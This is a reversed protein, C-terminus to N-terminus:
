QPTNQKDLKVSLFGEKVKAAYKLEYSMDGNELASLILNIEDQISAEDAYWGLLVKNEGWFSASDIGFLAYKPEDPSSKFIKNFLPVSLVKYCNILQKGNHTKIFIKGTSLKQPKPAAAEQTPGTVLYDLSVNLTKALTIMKEMEPYGSGQEWKSVAQRSVNLLEALDEQSINREKRITRLNEGFSM